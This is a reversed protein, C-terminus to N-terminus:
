SRKARGRHDPLPPADVAILRHFSCSCHFRSDFSRRPVDIYQALRPQPPELLAGPIDPKGGFAKFAGMQILPQADQPDFAVDGSTTIVESFFIAHADDVDFAGDLRQEGKLLSEITGKIDIVRVGYKKRFYDGGTPVYRKIWLVGLREYLHPSEFRKPAFWVDWARQQFWGLRPEGLVDVNRTTGKIRTKM